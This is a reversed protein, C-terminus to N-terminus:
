NSSERVHSPCQAIMGFDRVGAAVMEHQLFLSACGQAVLLLSVVPTCRNSLKEESAPTADM